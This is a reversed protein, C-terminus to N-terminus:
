RDVVEFAVEGARGRGHGIQDIVILDDEAVALVGIPGHAVHGTDAVPHAVHDAQHGWGSRAECSSNPDVSPRAM